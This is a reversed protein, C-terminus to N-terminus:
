ARRHQEVIVALDAVFFADDLLERPEGDIWGDAVVQDDEDVTLEDPLRRNIADRLATVVAPVDYDAVTPGLHALAVDRLCRTESNGLDLMDALDGLVRETVASIM